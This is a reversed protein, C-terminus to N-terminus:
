LTGTSRRRTRRKEDRRRRGRRSKKRRSGYERSYYYNWIGAIALSYNTIMSEQRLRLGVVLLCETSAFVRVLVASAKETLGASCLDDFFLLVSPASTTICSSLAVAGWSGNTAYSDRFIAFEDCPSSALFVGTCTTLQFWFSSSSLAYSASCPSQKTGCLYGALGCNPAQTRKM